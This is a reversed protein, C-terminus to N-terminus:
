PVDITNLTICFTIDTVYGHCRNCYLGLTDGKNMRLIM